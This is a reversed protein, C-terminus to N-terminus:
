QSSVISQNVKDLMAEDLQRFLFSTMVGAQPFLYPPTPCHQTPNPHPPTPTTDHPTTAHRIM